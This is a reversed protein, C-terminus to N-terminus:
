NFLKRRPVVIDGDKDLEIEGQVSGTEGHSRWDADLDNLCFSLEM